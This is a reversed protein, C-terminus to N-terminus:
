AGFTVKATIDGAGLEDANIHGDNNADTTIEVAVKPATVDLVAADTAQDSNGAADTVTAEVTVQGGDAPKTLTVEQGNALMDATVPGQFVVTGTQDKVVVTDGVATGAGFTVKATIDGAGLNAAAFTRVGNAHITLEGAVEQASVDLVA